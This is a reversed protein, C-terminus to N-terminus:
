FPRILNELVSLDPYLQILINLEISYQKSEIVNQNLEFTFTSKM